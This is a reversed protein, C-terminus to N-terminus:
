FFNQTIVTKIEATIEKKLQTKKGCKDIGEFSILIGKKTPM